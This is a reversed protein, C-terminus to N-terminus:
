WRTKERSVLDIADRLEAWLVNIDIGDNTSSVLVDGAM